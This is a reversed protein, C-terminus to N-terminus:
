NGKIKEIIAKPMSTGNSALDVYLRHLTGSNCGFGMDNPDLLRNAFRVAFKNTKIYRVLTDPVPTNLFHHSLYIPLVARLGINDQKSWEFIRDWEIEKNGRVLRDIDAYLRIGPTLTYYHGASIHYSCFYLQDTPNLVRIHKGEIATAGKRSDILRKTPAKQNLYSRAVAVWTIQFSFGDPIIENNKYKTVQDTDSKLYFGYKQFVSEIKKQESRDATMDIDSSQFCGLCAHGRLVSGFNETVCLSTIGVEEANLFVKDLVDLLLENRTVYRDHIQKWRQAEPFVKSLTHSAYSIIKTEKALSEISDAGLKDVSEQISANIEPTVAEESFMLQNILTAFLKRDQSM